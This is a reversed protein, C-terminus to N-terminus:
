HSVTQITPPENPKDKPNPTPTPEDPAELYAILQRIYAAKAVAAYQEAEALRLDAELAERTITM